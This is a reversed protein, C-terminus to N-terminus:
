GRQSTSYCGHNSKPLLSEYNSEDQQWLRLLLTERDKQQWSQWCGFFQLYLMFDVYSDWKVLHPHTANLIIILILTSASCGANIRLFLGGKGSTGMFEADTQLHM